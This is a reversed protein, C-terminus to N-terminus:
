KRERWKPRGFCSTFNMEFYFYWFPKICFPQTQTFSTWDPTHNTHKLITINRYIYLCRAGHAYWQTYRLNQRSHEQCISGGHWLLLFALNPQDTEQLHRRSTMRLFSGLSQTVTSKPLANKNKWLSSTSGRKLFSAQM